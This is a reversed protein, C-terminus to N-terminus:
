DEKTPIFTRNFITKDETELQVPKGAKDSCWIHYKSDVTVDSMLKVDLITLEQSGDLFILKSQATAPFQNFWGIFDYLKLNEKFLPTYKNM